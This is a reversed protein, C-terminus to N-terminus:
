CPPLANFPLMPVFNWSIANHYMLGSRINRWACVSLDKLVTIECNAIADVSTFINSVYLIAYLLAVTKTIM